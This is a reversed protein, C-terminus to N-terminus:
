KKTKSEAMLIKIRGENDLNYNQKLESFKTRARALGMRKIIGLWLGFKKKETAGFYTILDDVFSHLESHLRKNVVVKKFELKGFKKDSDDIDENYM